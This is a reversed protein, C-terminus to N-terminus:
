EPLYGRARMKEDEKMARQEEMFQWLRASYDVNAYLDDIRQHNAESEPDFPNFGLFILLYLYEAGNVDDRLFGLVARELKRDHM